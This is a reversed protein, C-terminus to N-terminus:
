ESLELYPDPIRAEKSEPSLQLNVVSAETLLARGVGAKKRWEIEFIRMAGSGAFLM